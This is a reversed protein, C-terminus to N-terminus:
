TVNGFDGTVLSAPRKVALAVREEARITLKNKVFNDSHESSILIEIAMRDYLTAAMRFSGVLFEDPDMSKTSVVPLGWMRPGAMAMVNAFLYREEGDKLLEIRAWDTPHLVIGDASFDALAVQLIALRLADIMQADSPTFEASYATAETVLGSLNEGVGSGKLIQMEEELELGFRMESNIFGQLQPSDDIAQRTVPVVHAITRVLADAPEWEYNSTPKTAGESVVAAQNDRVTQKFYEVRNSTTPVVSLLQRITLGQRPMQVVESERDSWIPGVASTIELRVQGRAGGAVFAQFDDSEIVHQGVTVIQGSGPRGSGLLTQELDRNRDSLEQLRGELKAQAEVLANQQILLEDARRKTEASVEGAQKAEKLAQEASQKVEGGVRQLETKVEQLLKEVSSGDARVLGIVGKPRQRAQLLRTIDVAAFKRNRM